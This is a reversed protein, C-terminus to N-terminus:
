PVRGVLKPPPSVVADRGSPRRLTAIYRNYRRTMICLLLLLFGTTVRREGAYPSFLIDWLFTVLVYVVVFQAFSTLKFAGLFLVRIALYFVVLWFLGGLIGAEMWGGFFHSHAPILGMRQEATIRAGMESMGRERLKTILYDYDKYWSGWGVFPSEIIKPVTFYVEERGEFISFNGTKASQDEYKDLARQGLIGKPAAYTYLGVVGFACATFFLSYLITRRTFASGVPDIRRIFLPIASSLLTIGALSRSNMFLAGLGAICPFILLIPYKDARRLGILWFLAISVGSGIGYKYKEAATLLEMDVSAGYSFFPSLGVGLCFYLIGEDRDQILAGLVLFSFGTLAIKSWGRLYDQADTGRYFDSFMLGLLYISLLMMMFRVNKDSFLMRIRPLLFPSVLLLLVEGISFSGVFSFRVYLLLPILFLIINTIMKEFFGCGNV